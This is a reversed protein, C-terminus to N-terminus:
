AYGGIECVIYAIESVSSDRGRMSVGWRKGAAAGPHHEAGPVRASREGGASESRREGASVTGNM